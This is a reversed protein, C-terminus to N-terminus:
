LLRKFRIPDPYEFVPERFRPDAQKQDTCLRIDHWAVNRVPHLPSQVVEQPILERLWKLAIVVQLTDTGGRSRLKFIIQSALKFVVRFRIPLEM